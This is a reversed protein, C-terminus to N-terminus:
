SLSVNVPEVPAAAAGETGEGSLEANKTQADEFATKFINADVNVSILM